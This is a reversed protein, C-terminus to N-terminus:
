ANIGYEVVVWVVAPCGSATKRRRDSDVILGQKVLEGRRPTYSQPGMNLVAEGEDDTLGLAGRERILALIRKRRSPTRTAVRRAAVESTGPPANHRAPPFLSPTKM